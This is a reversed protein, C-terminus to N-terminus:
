RATAPAAPPAGTSAYWKGPTTPPATGTSANGSSVILPM